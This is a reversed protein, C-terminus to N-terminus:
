SVFDGLIGVGGEGVTCVGNDVTIDGIGVVGPSLCALWSGWQGHSGPVRCQLEQVPNGVDDMGPVFDCIM